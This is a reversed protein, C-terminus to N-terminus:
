AVKGATHSTGIVKTARTKSRTPPERPPEWPLERPEPEDLHAALHDLGFAWLGLVGHLGLGRRPRASVSFVRRSPTLLRKGRCRHRHKGSRLIIFVRLPHPFVGGSTM